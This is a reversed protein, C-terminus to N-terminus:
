RVVRWRVHEHEPRRVVPEHNRSEVAMPPQTQPPPPTATSAAFGFVLLNSWVSLAGM